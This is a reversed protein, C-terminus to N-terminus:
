LHDVQQAVSRQESLYVKHDDQLYIITKSRVIVTILSSGDKELFPPPPHRTGVYM